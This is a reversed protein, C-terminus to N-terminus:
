EVERVPIFLRDKAWKDLLRDMTGDNILDDVANDMFHKLNPDDLNFAFAFSQLKAPPLDDRLKFTGPNNQNYSIEANKDLLIMDSKNTAIEQLINPGDMSPPAVRITANPFLSATLTDLSNSEPTIIRVDEKNFRDYDAFLLKTDDARVMPYLGAYFLPKSFVVARALSIDPWNPTCAVDIRNNQLALTWNSFNVEETWEVELGARSAIEEMMDVTMGSLEGTNPDLYTVPPFVYYGCRIVGTRMIRDFATEKAQSVAGDSQFVFQGIVLSAIVAAIFTLFLRM